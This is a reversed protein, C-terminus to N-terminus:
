AVALICAHEELEELVEEALGGALADVEGFRRWLREDGLLDGLGDRVVERQPTTEQGRWV